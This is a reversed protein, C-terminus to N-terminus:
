HRIWNGSLRRGGSFRSALIASNLDLEGSLSAVDGQPIGIDDATRPDLTAVTRQYRRRAKANSAYKLYHKIV